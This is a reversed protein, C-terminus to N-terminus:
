TRNRTWFGKPMLFGCSLVLVFFIGVAAFIAFYDSRAVFLLVGRYPFEVINGTEPIPTHPATRLLFNCVFGVAAFDAVALGLIIALLLKRTRQALPM